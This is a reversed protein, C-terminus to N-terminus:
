ECIPIILENHVNIDLPAIILTTQTTATSGDKNIVKSLIM